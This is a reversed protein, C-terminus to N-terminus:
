TQTPHLSCTLSFHGTNGPARPSDERHLHSVPRLLTGQSRLAQPQPLQKATQPWRSDPCDESVM